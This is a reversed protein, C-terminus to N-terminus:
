KHIKVSGGGLSQQSGNDYVVTEVGNDELWIKIRFTDPNDDDATIMFKYSGEGNITGVGKFQAKNGAVVLWEYTNSKFNLDGAKFQFETNGDPVNAGKKYKAVFGFNAKGFLTEDAKYAGAPSDIWGGGTVFGGSPDYVVVFEYISENSVGSDDDTVSLKVTYVGPVSYSHSDNVSGSGAGQTVTGASTGDGWDWSATHTDLTGPDSFTANANIATNVPVLSMDVSIAGLTPAVNNVEVTTAWEDFGDDKDMIRGTVDFSGNDAFACSTSASTGSGAYTEAALSGGNCDFAYHFGAAMDVSSYDFANSFSVSASDGENIPGNNNLDAEPPLNQVYVVTDDSDSAIGDNVSIQTPFDGNDICTLNPNALTPDDFTCVGPDSVTWNYILPNGDPDYSASGNLVISFGESGYYPGGANAVPPSNPITLEVNDIAPDRQRTSGGEQFRVVIDAETPTFTLTIKRWNASAFDCHTGAIRNSLNSALYVSAIVCPGSGRGYYKIDYSLTHQVGAVTSVAQYFSGGGGNTAFGFYQEGDSADPRLISFNSTYSGPWPLWPSLPATYQFTAPFQPEEFSGNAILNSSAASAPSFSAFSFLMALVVFVSM